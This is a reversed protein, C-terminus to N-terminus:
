SKGSLKSDCKRKPYWDWDGDIKKLTVKWTKDLNSTCQAIATLQGNSQWTPASLYAEAYLEPGERRIFNYGRWSLKGSIFYIEWEQGDMGDPQIAVLYARRDQSILVREGGPIIQGTAENILTGTSIVEDEKSLLIFGEKRNCFYYHTGSMPEDHPGKDVFTLTKNLTNIVLQHLSQRVVIDKAQAAILSAERGDHRPDKCSLELAKEDSWACFHLCSLVSFLYIKLLNMASKKPSKAFNNQTSETPFLTPHRL